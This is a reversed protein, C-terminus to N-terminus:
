QPHIIARPRPQLPRLSCPLTSRPVGASYLTHDTRREKYCEESGSHLRAHAYARQTERQEVKRKMTSDLLSYEATMAALLEIQEPELQDKGGCYCAATMDSICLLEQSNLVSELQSHQKPGWSGTWLCTYPPRHLALDCLPACLAGVGM